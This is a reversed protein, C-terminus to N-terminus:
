TTSLSPATVRNWSALTVVMRTGGAGWGTPSEARVTGGMADVLEAVIALGLGTGVQRAPHRASTFLRDFVRPLDEPSIGPGDDDVWIVPGHDSAAVGIRVGSRAYKLANEVLNAVVQALRDPDATALSAGEPGPQFDLHLGM